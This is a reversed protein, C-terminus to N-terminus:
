LTEKVLYVKVYDDKRVTCSLEWRAGCSCALLNTVGGTKSVRGAYTAFRLEVGCSSCSVRHSGHADLLFCAAGGAHRMGWDNLRFFEGVVPTM